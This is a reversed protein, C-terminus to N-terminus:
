RLSRPHSRVRRISSSRASHLLGTRASRLGGSKGRSVLDVPCELDSAVRASRSPWKTFRWGVVCAGKWLGRQQVTESRREAGWVEDVMRQIEADCQPYDSLSPSRTPPSGVVTAGQAILDRIKALLSPTMTDFAPLVLLRYSAGGPFVVRGDVVTASSLLTESPCGDFNYDRAIVTSATWRVPHRVSCMRRVKPFLTCSTPWRCNGSRLMTQCRALYDHYADVMPWWTQTREWHVGYPGM